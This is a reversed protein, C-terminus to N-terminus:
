VHMDDANMITAYWSVQRFILPLVSTLLHLLPVVVVAVGTPSYHRICLLIHNVPFGYRDNVRVASVRITHRFRRTSTCFVHVDHLLFCALECSGYHSMLSSGAASMSVENVENVHM